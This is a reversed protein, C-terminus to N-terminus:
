ACRGGGSRARQEGGVIPDTSRAVALEAVASVGSGVAAARGDLRAVDAPDAVATEDRGGQQHRDAPSYPLEETPAARCYRSPLAPRAPLRAVRVFCIKDNTILGNLVSQMIDLIDRQALIATQDMFLVARADHCDQAIGDDAHQMPRPPARDGRPQAGVAAVRLFDEGEEADWDGLICLGQNGSRPACDAASQAQAHPMSAKQVPYSSDKRAHRMPLMSFSVSNTIAHHDRPLAVIAM